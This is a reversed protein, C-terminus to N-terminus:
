GLSRIRRPPPTLDVGALAKLDRCLERDSRAETVAFGRLLESVDSRRPAFRPPAPDPTPEPLAASASAIEAPPPESAVSAPALEEPESPEPEPAPTWGVEAYDPAELPPLLRREVPVPEAVPEVPQVPEAVGETHLAAYGAAAAEFDADEHSDVEARAIDSGDDPEADWIEDNSASEWADLYGDDYPDRAWLEFDGDPSAEVEIAASTSDAAPEVPAPPVPTPWAIFEPLPPLELEPISPLEPVASEAAIAPAEEELSPLEEPEVAPQEPVAETLAPPEPSSWWRTVPYEDDSAPSSEPEFAELDEDVVIVIEDDLEFHGDAADAVLPPESADVPGAVLEAEVIEEVPQVAVPEEVIEEAPQV